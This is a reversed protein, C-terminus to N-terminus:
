VQQSVLSFLTPRRGLAVTRMTTGFECPSRGPVSVHLVSFAFRSPRLWSAAATLLARRFIATKSRLSWGPRVTKKRSDPRSKQDDDDNRRKCIRRMQSENNGANENKPPPSKWPLFCLMATTWANLANKTLGRVSLRNRYPSILRDLKRCLEMSPRACAAKAVFPPSV